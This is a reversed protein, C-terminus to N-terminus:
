KAGGFLSLQKFSPVAGQNARCSECRILSPLGEIESPQVFFKDCSCLWCPSSLNLLAEDGQMFAIVSLGSLGLFGCQELMELSEPLYHRSILNNLKSFDKARRNLGWISSTSQPSHPIISSLSDAGKIKGVFFNM